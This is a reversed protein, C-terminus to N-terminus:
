ISAYPNSRLSQMWAIWESTDIPEFCGKTRNKRCNWIPLILGSMAVYVGKPLIQAVNMAASLNAQADSRRLSYPFMAGTL